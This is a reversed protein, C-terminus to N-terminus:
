TPLSVVRGPPANSSTPISDRLTIDRLHHAEEFFDLLQTIPIRGGIDQSLAFTTLKLLNKRPLDTVFGALSLSRLSPLGANSFTTDLTPDPSCTLSITIKRLLPIPCSLHPKLNQLLKGSGYINLSKLRSIHPVFLLFADEHYDTSRCDRLSIELPSSKSREIYVRTKNTIACDLRVWLSPYAILLERWGRCVHSMTILSKDEKDEGLHEPIVSFVESPIQNISAFLNRM